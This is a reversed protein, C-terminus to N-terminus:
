ARCDPCSAFIEPSQNSRQAIYELQKLPAWYKGCTPCRSMKFEIKDGRVALTRTDGVDDITIVETPCVYACSGCGICRDEIVSVAAADNELYAGTSNFDIADVGVIKHCTEFCRRCLICYENDITFRAQDVGLKHAMELIRPSKPCQALLLEMVMQRASVARESNTSVAIGDSVPFTCATVLIPKKGDRSVEVSCLRCSELPSLEEHYCISPITIGAQKAAQMITSGPEVEVAKNDITLKVM